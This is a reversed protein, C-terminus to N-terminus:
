RSNSHRAVCFGCETREVKPRRIESKPRRESKLRRWMEGQQVRLVAVVKSFMSSKQHGSGCCSITTAAFGCCDLLSLCKIVKRGTVNQSFPGRGAVNWPLPDDRRLSDPLVVLDMQNRHNSKSPNVQVQGPELGASELRGDVM